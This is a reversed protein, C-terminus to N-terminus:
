ELAAGYKESLAAIRNKLTDYDERLRKVEKVAYQALRWDDDTDATAGTLRFCEALKAEHRKMLSVAATMETLHDAEAIVARPLGNAEAVEASLEYRRAM